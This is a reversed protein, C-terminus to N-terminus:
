YFIELTTLGAFLSFNNYFKYLLCGLTGERGALPLTTADSSFVQKQQDFIYYILIFKNLWWGGGGGVRDIKQVLIYQFLKKSVM